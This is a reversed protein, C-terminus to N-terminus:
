RSPDLSLASQMMAKLSGADLGDSYPIIDSDQYRGTLALANAFHRHAPKFRKRRLELSGLAFHAMILDPDLYLARRFSIAAEESLGREQLIMGHLHHLFANLKDLALSKESWEFADELEGLNACIRARLGAEEATWTPDSSNEPLKGASEAYRGQTFFALAESYRSSAPEKDELEAGAPPIPPAPKQKAKQFPFPTPLRDSFLSISPAARCGEGYPTEMTEGGCPAQPAMPHSDAKRYLTLDDTHVAAFRSFLPSGAESPSVILWGQEAMAGRFNQVARAAREPTFYM